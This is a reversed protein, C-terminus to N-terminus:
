HDWLDDRERDEWIRKAEKEWKLLTGLRIHPNTKQKEKIESKIKDFVQIYSHGQKELGLRISLASIIYVVQYELDSTSANSFKFCDLYYNLAENLMEEDSLGNKRLQTAIRLCYGGAKYFANPIEMEMEVKARLVALKYSMVMASLERPVQFFTNLDSENAVLDKRTFMEEELRTIVLPGLQSKVESRLRMSYTVFDKKDPSAFLCRPCIAVAFRGYEVTKFGATGEYTPSLFKDLTVVQSKAKLEYCPIDSQQCVPCRVKIMFLPDQLAGPASRSAKDDQEDKLQKIYKINIETGFRKLYIQILEDDKLLSQLKKKALVTNLAM